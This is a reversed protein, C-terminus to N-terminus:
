LTENKNEYDCEDMGEVLQRECFMKLNPIYDKAISWIITKDMDEYRHAITNRCRIFRGWDIITSTQKRYEASLDYIAEGIQIIYFSIAAAIDADSLFINLTVSHRSIYDSLRTCNRFIVSISTTDEVLPKYLTTKRGTFIPAYYRKKTPSASKPRLYKQFEPSNWECMNLVWMLGMVRCRIIQRDLGLKEANCNYVYYLDIMKLIEDVPRILCLSEFYERSYLLFSFIDSSCPTEFDTIDDVLGLIWLLAYYTETNNLVSPANKRGNLYVGLEQNFLMEDTIYYEHFQKRADKFLTQHSKTGSEKMEHIMYATRGTIVTRKIIDAIPRMKPNTPLNTLYPWMYYKIKSQLIKLNEKRISRCTDIKLPM